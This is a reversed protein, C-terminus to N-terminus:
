ISFRRSGLHPGLNFFLWAREAERKPFETKSGLQQAIPFSLDNPLSHTTKWGIGWQPRLRSESM